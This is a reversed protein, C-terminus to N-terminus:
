AGLGDIYGSLVRPHLPWSDFGLRDVTAAAARLLVTLRLNLNCLYRYLPRAQRLLWLFGRSGKRVTLNGLNSRTEM